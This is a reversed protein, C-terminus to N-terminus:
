NKARVSGTEVLAFGAQMLLIFGTSNVILVINAATDEDYVTEEPKKENLYSLPM